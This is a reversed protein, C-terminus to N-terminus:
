VPPRHFHSNCVLSRLPRNWSNNQLRRARRGRWPAETCYLLLQAMGGVNALSQAVLTDVDSSATSAHSHLQTRVASSVLPSRARAGGAGRTVNQQAESASEFSPLLRSDRSHQLPTSPALLSSAVLYRSILISKRFTSFTASNVAAFDLLIKEIIAM